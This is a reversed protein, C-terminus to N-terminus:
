STFLSSQANVEIGNLNPTHRFKSLYELSDVCCVHLSSLGGGGGGGCLYQWQLWPFELVIFVSKYIHISEVFHWKELIDSLITSLCSFLAFPM